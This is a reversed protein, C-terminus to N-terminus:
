TLPIIHTGVNAFVSDTLKKQTHIHSLNNPYMGQTPDNVAM